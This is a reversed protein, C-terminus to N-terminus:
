TTLTKRQFNKVITSKNIRHLSKFSAKQMKRSNKISPYQELTIKMKNERKIDAKKEKSSALLM